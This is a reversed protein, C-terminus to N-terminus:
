VVLVGPVGVVTSLVPWQVVLKLKLLMVVMLHVVIREEMQRLQNLVLVLVQKLVQKAALQSVVYVGLVGPVGVVMSLRHANVVMGNTLKQIAIQLLLFVLVMQLSLLLFLPIVMIIFIFHELITHFLLLFM